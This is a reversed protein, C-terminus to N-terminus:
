LAQRHVGPCHATDVIHLSDFKNRSHETLAVESLVHLHLTKVSDHFSQLLQWSCGYFLCVVNCDAIRM